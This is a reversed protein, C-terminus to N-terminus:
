GGRRGAALRAAFGTADRRIARRAPRRPRRAVGGPAALAPDPM